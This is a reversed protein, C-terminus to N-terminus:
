VWGKELGSYILSLRANYTNLTLAGSAGRILVTGPNIVVAESASLDTLQVADRLAPAPPLTLTLVSEVVYHIGAQAATNNSIRQIPAAQPAGLLWWNAPDASPDTTGAGATKRRYNLGNTPSWVVVGAAYTTGSVWQVAGAAAAAAVVSMAAAAESQAASAASVASAAANGHSIDANAAVNAALLGLDYSVGPMATAYTYAMQNFNPAGLAPYTPVTPAPPPTIALTM